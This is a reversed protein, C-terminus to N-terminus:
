KSKAQFPRITRNYPVVPNKNCTPKNDHVVYNQQTNNSPVTGRIKGTARKEADSGRLQVNEPPFFFSLFFINSYVVNM